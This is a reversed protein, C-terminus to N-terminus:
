VYRIGKVRKVGKASLAKDLKEKKIEAKLQDRLLMLEAITYKSLTRGKISYNQVDRDAKGLLMLEIKELMELAFSM